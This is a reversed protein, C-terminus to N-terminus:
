VQTEQVAPLIKVMQAVLSPGQVISVQVILRQHLKHLIDTCGTDQFHVHSLWGRRISLVARLTESLRGRSNYDKTHSSYSKKENTRRLKVTSQFKMSLSNFSVVVKSLEPM